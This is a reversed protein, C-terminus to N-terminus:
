YKYSKMSQQQKGKTGATKTISAVLYSFTTSAKDLIVTVHVYAHFFLTTAAKQKQQQQKQQSKKNPGHKRARVSNRIWALFLM